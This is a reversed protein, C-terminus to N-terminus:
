MELPSIEPPCTLVVDRRSAHERRDWRQARATLRCFLFLTGQNNVLVDPATGKIATQSM